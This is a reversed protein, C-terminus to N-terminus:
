YNLNEDDSLSEYFVIQNTTGDYDYTIDEPLENNDELLNLFEENRKNDQIIKKTDVFSLKSKLHEFKM